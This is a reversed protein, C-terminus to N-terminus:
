DEYELGINKVFSKFDFCIPIALKTDMPLLPIMVIKWPENGRTDFALLEGGGNTGFSFFSPIHIHVEYGLNFEIVNEAPWIQFWGPDIRLEGEGGNSFQLLAIYEAPLEINAKQKLKKIANPKAPPQTHWVAKPSLLKKIAIM